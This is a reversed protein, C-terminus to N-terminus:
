IARRVKIFSAPALMELLKTINDSKTLDVGLNGRLNSQKLFYPIGKQSLGM